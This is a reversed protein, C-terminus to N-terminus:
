LNGDLGGKTVPAVERSRMFQEVAARQYRVHSGCKIFTPGEGRYRWNRLTAPKLQFLSALESEKLLSEQFSM